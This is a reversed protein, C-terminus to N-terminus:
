YLVDSHLPRADRVVRWARVARLGSGQVRGAQARVGEQDAPADDPARVGGRAPRDDFIGGRARGMWVWGRPQQLQPQEHDPLHRWGPILGDRSLRARDRPAAQLLAVRMVRRAPVRHRVRHRVRRGPRPLDALVCDRVFPRVARGRIPAHRRVPPAQYRRPWVRCGAMADTLREGAEGWRVGVQFGAHKCGADFAAGSVTAGSLVMCLQFSGIWSIDSSSRDALQNAAYHTQFVGYSNTFGWTTFSVCWAGLVVSCPLPRTAASFPPLAHSPPPPSPPPPSCPDARRRAPSSCAASHRALPRGAFLWGAGARGTEGGVWILLHCSM